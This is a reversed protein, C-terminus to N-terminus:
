RYRYVEWAEIITYLSHMRKNNEYKIFRESVSMNTLHLECLLGFSKLENEMNFCIIDVIWCLHM